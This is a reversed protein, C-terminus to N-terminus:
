SLTAFCRPVPMKGTIGRPTVCSIVHKERALHREASSLGFGTGSNVVEM